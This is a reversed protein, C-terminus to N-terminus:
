ASQNLIESYRMPRRRRLWLAYGVGAIFAVGILAPLANVFRNASGSLYDFNRLSIVLGVSLGIAALAPATVHAWWQRQPSRWFFAMVAISTLTQMFLVGVAALGLAVLGLGVMPHVGLLGCTVCIVFSIISIVVSAVHPSGHRIHARGLTRPLCGQRGLVFLYRAAVNHISLVTAFMSTALAVQIVHTFLPNLYKDSIAFYITGVQEATINRINDPGIAGVTFWSTLCYFVGILAIALYTARAVSREPAHSEESYLAASEIGFYCTFALLISIGPAGELLARPQLSKSPLSHVGLKAFIGLDLTLLLLFEFVILVSIVKSSLDIRRYGLTGAAAWAALSFWLWNVDIGAVDHLTTHLVFGLYSMGGPVFATYSVVAVAAAGIGLVRGMGRAIYTYFAGGSVVQRSIASYGVAFLAVVISVLAFALPLAAGSGFVLAVPLVGIVAGLPAVAAVVFCVLKATGLSRRLASASSADPPASALDGKAVADVAQM